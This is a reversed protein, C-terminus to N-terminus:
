LVHYPAMGYWIYWWKYPPVTSYISSPTFAHNKAIRSESSAFGRRDALVFFPAEKTNNTQVTPVVMGYPIKIGYWVPWRSQDWDSFLNDDVSLSRGSSDGHPVSQRRERPLAPAGLGLGLGMAEGAKGGAAAPERGLWLLRLVNM